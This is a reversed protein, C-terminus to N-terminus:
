EKGTDDDPEVPEPAFYQQCEKISLEMADKWTTDTISRKRFAWLVGRMLDNASMHEMGKGYHREIAQTEYGNLCELAESMPIDVVPTYEDTM